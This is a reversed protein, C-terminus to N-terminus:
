KFIAKTLDTPLYDKVNIDFKEVIGIGFIFKANVILRFIPAKRSILDPLLISAVYKPDLDLEINVKTNGRDIKLKGINYRGIIYGDYELYGDVQNIWLTTDTPNNIVLGINLIYSDALKSLTPRTFRISQFSWNLSNFMEYLKFARYAIFAAGGILANKVWKQM